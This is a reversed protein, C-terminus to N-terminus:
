VCPNVYCAISNIEQIFDDVLLLHMNKPFETKRRSLHLRIDKTNICDSMLVFYLKEEFNKYKAIKINLNTGLDHVTSTTFVDVAFNGSPTFVYFDLRSKSSDGTPREIHVFPNHFKDILLNRITKEGAKGRLNSELGIKSRFKGISFNIDAYGILERLQPLGGFIRQIQRISPLFVVSDIEKATPLRGNEKEFKLFGAKVNELSWQKKYAM